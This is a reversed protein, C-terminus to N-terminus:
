IGDPIIRENDSLLNNVLEDKLGCNLLLQFNLEARLEKVKISKLVNVDVSDLLNTFLFLCYFNYYIFLILTFM